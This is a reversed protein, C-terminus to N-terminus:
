NLVRLWDPFILYVDEAIDKPVVAHTLGHNGMYAIVGAKGQQIAEIVDKRLTLWTIQNDVSPFFFKEGDLSAHRAKDLRNLDVWKRIVVYQEAKVQTKLHELARKRER